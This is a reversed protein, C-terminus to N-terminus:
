SWRLTEVWARGTFSARRQASSCLRRSVATEVWARGTFSARSGRPARQGSQELTEVWARGTFSARSSSNWNPPTVNINCGVRTGHLGRSGGRLLHGEDAVHKLGRADRSPRAVCALDTTSRGRSTEVWARGTFSARRHIFVGQAGFNM